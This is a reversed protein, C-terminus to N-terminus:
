IECAIDQHKMVDNTWFVTTFRNKESGEKILEDIGNQLKDIWIKHLISIYRKIKEPSKSKQSQSQGENKIHSKKM